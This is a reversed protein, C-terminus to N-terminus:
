QELIEIFYQKDFRSGLTSKLVAMNENFQKRDYIKGKRIGGVWDCSYGFDGWEALREEFTNLTSNKSTISNYIAVAMKDNMILEGEINGYPRFDLSYIVGGVRVYCPKVIHEGIECELNTALAAHTKCDELPPIPHFDGTTDIIGFRIDFSHLKQPEIFESGIDISEYDHYHVRRKTFNM